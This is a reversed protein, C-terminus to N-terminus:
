PMWRLTKLNHTHIHCGRLIAQTAQGIPRGYETVKAGAPIDRMAVKHGLPIDERILVVAVFQGDLTVAGVERGTQIDETAIGVDDDAEHLLVSHNM